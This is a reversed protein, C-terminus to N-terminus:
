SRECVTVWTSKAVIFTVSCSSAVGGPLCATPMMSGTLCDQETPIARSMEWVFLRHHAAQHSTHRPQPTIFM